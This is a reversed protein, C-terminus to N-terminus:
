KKQVFVSLNTLMKEQQPVYIYRPLWERNEFSMEVFTLEIKPLVLPSNLVRETKKVPALIAVVVIFLTVAVYTGFTLAGRGKKTERITAVAVVIIWPISMLIPGMPLIVIIVALITAVTAHLKSIKEM